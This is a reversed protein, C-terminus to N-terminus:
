PGCIRPPSDDHVTRTLASGFSPMMRDFARAPGGKETVYIWDVDPERTAFNCDTFDPLPTDFGARSSSVGTGDLGHCAACAKEYLAKGTQPLDSIEQPKDARVAAASILVVAAIGPIAWPLLQLATRWKPNRDRM